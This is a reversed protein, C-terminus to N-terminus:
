LWSTHEESVAKYFPGNWVEKAVNEDTWYPQLWCYFFPLCFIGRTNSAVVTDVSSCGPCNTTAWSASYDAGIGSTGLEFRTMPLNKIIMTVTLQQFSSFLSFLPRSHGMQLFFIRPNARHSCMFLLILDCHKWLDNESVLGNLKGFTMSGNYFMGYRLLCKAWM